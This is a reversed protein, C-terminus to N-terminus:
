QDQKKNTVQPRYPSDKLPQFHRKKHPPKRKIPAHKTLSSTPSFTIHSADLGAKVILDKASANSTQTISLGFAQLFRLLSLKNNAEIELYPLMGPYTDLEILVDQYTFEARYKERVSTPTFGLSELLQRATEFDSVRIEIEDMIKFRGGARKRKATLFARKGIERLRVTAPSQSTKSKRAFFIEKVMTQPLIQKAGIRRLRKLLEDKPLHTIKLEIEAM